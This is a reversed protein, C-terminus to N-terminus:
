IWAIEEQKKSLRENFWQKLEIYPAYLLKQELDIQEARLKYAQADQLNRKPPNEVVVLLGNNITVFGLEYFVKTMFKLVEENWGTHKALDAVQLKLNFNPRKKLFSYYWSFQERTPMGNFYQSDMMYFHAYIRSPETRELLRELLEVNQPLDLLVIYDSQVVGDLQENVFHISADMLSRYHHVTETRFALFVAEDKPVTMLWRTTQRIGRIDFLQWETTQVDEIMFQPKKKGQWENIQLDGVFSVKVGYTLEDHLHGKNFGVADLPGGEDQLEIKLHNEAAGIKRMTSIEVNELAFIPKSFAMGFPGLLAIEEISEVTIEGINVPIDIMLKQTLQEETLCNHAQENLRKRLENVHELPLTM